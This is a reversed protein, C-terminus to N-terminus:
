LSMTTPMGHKLVAWETPWTTVATSVPSRVCRGSRLAVMRIESPPDVSPVTSAAIAAPPRSRNSSGSM